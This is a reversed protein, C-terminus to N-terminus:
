CNQLYNIMKTHKQTIKQINQLYVLSQSAIVFVFCFARGYFKGEFDSKTM